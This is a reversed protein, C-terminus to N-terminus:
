LLGLLRAATGGTVLGFEGEGITTAAKVSGIPDPDGV